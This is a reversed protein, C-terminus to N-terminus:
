TNNLDGLKLDKVAESVKKKYEDFNSSQELAKWLIWVVKRAKLKKM